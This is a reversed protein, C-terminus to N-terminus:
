WHERIQLHLPMNSNIGPIHLAIKRDQLITLNYLLFGNLDLTCYFVLIVTCGIYSEILSLLLSCFYVLQYFYGLNVINQLSM